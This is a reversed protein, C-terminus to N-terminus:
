SALTQMMSKASAAEPSDPHDNLLKQLTLRADIRDNIQMFAQAERLLASSTYRGKPFRLTLDNFQLISQDYKGIEYLANASFYEAPESLSSKPYRHQLDQFKALAQAYRADRMDLLAARYLRAGQEDHSTALEQDLTSRWSPASMAAPPPVTNVPPAPPAASATEGAALPPGAPTGAPGAPATAASQGQAATAETELKSVRQNLAALSAKPGAGGGNHEMETMRDNLHAVQEQLADIQQRDNAVMGRLAFENSQLQQM